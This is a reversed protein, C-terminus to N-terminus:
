VENEGACDREEAGDRSSQSRRHAVAWFEEGGAVKRGSYSMRHTFCMKYRSIVKLRQWDHIRSRRGAMREISLFFVRGQLL